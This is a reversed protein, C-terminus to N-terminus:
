DPVFSIARNLMDRYAEVAESPAVIQISGGMGFVWGYFTKSASVRVFAHFHESDSIETPVGDGFRDIITKMMTNECKLTVDLIPGDYMHFVSKVFAALDFNDPVPM